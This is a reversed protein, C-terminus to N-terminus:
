LCNLRFSLLCHLYAIHASLALHLLNRCGHAIELPDYLLLEELSLQMGGILFLTLDQRTGQILALGTSVVGLEGLQDILIDTLTDGSFFLAFSPAAATLGLVCDVELIADAEVLVGLPVEAHEAFVLVENVRGRVGELVVLFGELACDHRLAEIFVHTVLLFLRVQILGDGPLVGIM